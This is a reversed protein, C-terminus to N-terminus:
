RISLRINAEAAANFFTIEGVGNAGVIADTAAELVARFRGESEGRAHGVENSETM